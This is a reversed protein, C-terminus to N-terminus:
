PTRSAVVNEFPGSVEEEPRHDGLVHVEGVGPDPLRRVEMRRVIGALEVYGWKGGFRAEASLDPVPFHGVVNTLEVRDKYAGLDASGGPRELAVTVKSYETQYPRWWFQVNRYFIMGSPGWYDIGNPFIDIDM